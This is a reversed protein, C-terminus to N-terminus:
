EVMYGIGKKTKIFDELELEQLKKRLRNINVTLTNDDVFNDNEWLREMIDERTVVSGKNEMLIQIIRYDNKTMDIKKDNYSITTDNLNLFVGRHEICNIKGQFSYTRRIIAGVKAGLVDLDFPKSIFDDGGMNMAMIINM